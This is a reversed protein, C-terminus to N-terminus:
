RAGQRRCHLRSMQAVVGDPRLQLVARLQQGGAVLKGKVRCGDLWDGEFYSGDM